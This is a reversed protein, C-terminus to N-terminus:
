NWQQHGLTDLHRLFITRLTAVTHNGPVTFVREPPLVSALLPPGEATLFDNEGYGLWIPPLAALGRNKIWSWLMRDLDKPDDSAASWMAVGGALRIEQHMSSGGLFPSSLLVGDVDNPYRRVYLLSGLGGLSFGALWIREYGQRRAPDIVDQKLRAELTNSQYYGLHTDPAIVDLPLRRKRIEAVIGEKDFITNDAGVGRLLVLLNRQRKSPDSQYSLSSIPIAPAAVCGALLLAAFVIAFFRRSQDFTAMSHLGTSAIVTVFWM